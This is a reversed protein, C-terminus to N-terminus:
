EKRQTVILTALRRGNKEEWTVTVADGARLDTFAVDRNNLRIKANPALQFSHDKDDKDTMVLTNKDDMITKIKGKSEEALCQSASGLILALAFMVLFGFQLKRM